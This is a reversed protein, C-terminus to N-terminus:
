RTKGAYAAVLTKAVVPDMTIEQVEIGFEEKMMAKNRRYIATRTPKSKVDEVVTVALPVKLGGEPGWATMVTYRFDAIYKQGCKFKYPAHASLGWLDRRDQSSKLQVYRAAEAISDFTIGDLTVRKNNYKSRKRKRTRADLLKQQAPDKLAM